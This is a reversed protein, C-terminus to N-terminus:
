RVAASRRAVFAFCGGVHNKAYVEVVDPHDFLAAVRATLDSKAPHHEVLPYMIRHQADYPRLAMPRDNLDPPLSTLSASGACGQAHVVVPGTERYPGTWRYPSWAIIALRDGVVSPQLCCRLPWGGEDDVFAEIPSGGCDIRAALVVSLEETDIGEFMVQSM